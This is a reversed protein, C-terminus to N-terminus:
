PMVIGGDVLIMQGTVHRSYDSAFFLIADAVEEPKGIRGLASSKAIGVRIEEPLHQRPLDTDTPGPCVSNVTINYKGLYRATSKTFGLLGAKAATYAPDIDMGHVGAISSVNVIRGYKRPIMRRAAAQTCLFPGTLDVQLIDDWFDVTIEELPKPVGTGANNVLIDLKGFAKDLQEFLADVESRKGVNAPVAVSKRGLSQIMRVVQTAADRNQLYNVLVDAGARALALVTARGIGRGGGTVLAVKGTFDMRLGEKSFIEPVYLGDDSKFSVEFLNKAVL